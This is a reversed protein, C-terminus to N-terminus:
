RMRCLFRVFVMRRLLCCFMPRSIIETVTEQARGRHWDETLHLRFSGAKRESQANRKIKSEAERPVRM